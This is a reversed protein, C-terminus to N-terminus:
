RYGRWNQELKAYVIYNKGHKATLYVLWDGRREPISMCIKEVHRLERDFQYDLSDRVVSFPITTIYVQHGMPKILQVTKSTLVISM